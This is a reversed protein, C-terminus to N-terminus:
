LCGIFEAAAEAVTIPDESIESAWSQTSGRRQTSSEEYDEDSSSDQNEEVVDENESEDETDAGYELDRASINLWKRMVVKAWLRQSKQRRFSKRMMGAPEAVKLM